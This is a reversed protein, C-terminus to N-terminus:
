TYKWFYWLVIQQNKKLSQFSM